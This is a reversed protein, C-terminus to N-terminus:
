SQKILLILKIAVDFNVIKGNANGRIDERAKQLTTIIKEVNKVTIFRDFRAVFETEAQNMFNLGPLQFNHLFSERIMRICYDYFLLERERGLGALDFAWDKLKAVDRSYALRMLSKFKELWLSSEKGVKLANLASIMSGEAIHAISRAEHPEIQEKEALEHAIIEDPLRKVKIRQLRSYITPLIEEPRNSVMIIFTDGLPEEILKLLKNATDLRMKEPLWMILTRYKTVRSEFALKHIISESESVYITPQANTKGFMATWREYDPYISESLFQKWDDHFDDSVPQDVGEPKVIPYSYLTDIQNFHEMQICTPCKGCSDGDPTRNECNNYQAVARALALKGAGPPGELLLAHPIKRSEVIKRLREKVDEQGAIDAFKM